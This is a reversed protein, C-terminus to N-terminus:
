ESYRHRHSAVILSHGPESPKPKGAPSPTPEVAPPPAPRHQSVAVLKLVSATGLTIALGVVIWTLAWTFHRM